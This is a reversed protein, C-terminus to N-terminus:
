QGAGAASRDLRVDVAGTSDTFRDPPSPMHSRVLPLYFMKSPEEICSSRILRRTCPVTVPQGDLRHGVREPSLLSPQMM